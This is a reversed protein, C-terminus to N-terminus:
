KITKLLKEFETKQQNLKSINIDINKIKEAILKKCEAVADSKIIFVFTKDYDIIYDNVKRYTLKFKDILYFDSKGGFFTEKIYDILYQYLNKTLITGFDSVKTLKIEKNPLKSSVINFYRDMYVSPCFIIETLVDNYKKLFKDINIKDVNVFEITNITIHKIKAFELLRYKAFSALKQSNDMGSFFISIKM